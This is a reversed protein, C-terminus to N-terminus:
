SQNKEDRNSPKRIIVVAAVVLTTNGFVSGVINFRTTILYTSLGMFVLLLIFGFM